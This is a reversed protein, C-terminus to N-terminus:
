SVGGNTEKTEFDGAAEPPGVLSPLSANIRSLGVVEFLEDEPDAAALIVTRSPDQVATAEDISIVVHSVLLVAVGASWVVRLLVSEWLSEWYDSKAPRLLALGAARLTQERLDPPPLPRKFSQLLSERSNEM